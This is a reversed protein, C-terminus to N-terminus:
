ILFSSNLYLFLKLFILNFSRHFYFQVFEKVYGNIFGLFLKDCDGWIHRPPPPPHLIEERYMTKSLYTPPPPPAGGIINKFINICKFYFRLKSQKNCLSTRLVHRITLSLPWPVNFNQSLLLKRKCAIQCM